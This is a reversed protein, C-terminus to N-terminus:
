CILQCIKVGYSLYCIGFHKKFKHFIYFDDVTMIKRYFKNAKKFFGPIIWSVSIWWNVHGTHWAMNFGSLPKSLAKVRRKTQKLTSSLLIVVLYEKLGCELRKFIKDWFCELKQKVSYSMKARLLLYFICM